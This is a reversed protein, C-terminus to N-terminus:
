GVIQIDPEGVLLSKLKERENLENEAIIVNIRDM